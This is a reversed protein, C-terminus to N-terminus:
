LKLTKHGGSTSIREKMLVNRGSSYNVLVEIFNNDRTKKGLSSRSRRSAVIWRRRINFFVPTLGGCFDLGWQYWASWKHRITVLIEQVSKLSIEYSCSHSIGSVERWKQGKEWLLSLAFRGMTEEYRDTQISWITALQHLKWSIRNLVDVSPGQCMGTKTLM